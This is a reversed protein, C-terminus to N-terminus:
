KKRSARKQAIHEICIAAVGFVFVLLAVLGILSLGINPGGDPDFHSEIPPIIVMIVVVVMGSVLVIARQGRPGVMSSM